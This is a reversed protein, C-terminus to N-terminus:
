KFVETRNFQGAISWVNALGGVDHSGKIVVLLLGGLMIVVQIADTWV